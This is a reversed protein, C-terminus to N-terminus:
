GVCGSYEGVRHVVVCFNQDFTFLSAMVTAAIAARSVLRGYTQNM